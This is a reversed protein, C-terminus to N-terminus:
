NQKFVNDDLFRQFEESYNTKMSSWIVPLFPYTEVVARYANVPLEIRGNIYEIYEQNWNAFIYSGLGFLRATEGPPIDEYGPIRSEFGGLRAIFSSFEEDTALLLGYGAQNESLSSLAQARLLENNQKTQVSLYILTILIAISSIIEAISSWKTWNTEKM